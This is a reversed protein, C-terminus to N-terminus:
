LVRFINPRGLRTVDSFAHSERRGRQIRFITIAASVADILAEPDIV